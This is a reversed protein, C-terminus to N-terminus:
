IINVFSGNGLDDSQEVILKVPTRDTLESHSTLVGIILNDARMNELSTVIINSTESDLSGFSEDLFLLEIPAKVNAQIKSSLAFALATSAMFIEGDSLTRPVRNMGGNLNDQVYIEADDFKLAFRGKSIILLKKSAEKVIYKLQNQSMYEAFKSDRFLETLKELAAIESEKESKQRLLINVENLDIEMLAIKSNVIALSNIKDEIDEKLITKRIAFDSLKENIEKLNTIGAIETLGVAENIEINFGNSGDIRLLENSNIDKIGTMETTVEDTITFEGFGTIEGIGTFEIESLGGFNNLVTLENISNLEDIKDLGDLKNSEGLEGFGILENIDGLEDVRNSENVEVSENLESFADIENLENFTTFEEIEKIEEIVTAETIEAVKKIVAPEGTLKRNLNEINISVVKVDEHYKRIEENINNEEISSIFAKLVDEISEFDLKILNENIQIQLSNFDKELFQKENESFLLEDEHKKWAESVTKFKERIIKENKSINDIRINVRKHEHELNEKNSINFIESFKNENNLIYNEKSKLDTEMNLIEREINDIHIKSDKLEEELEDTKKILIDGATNLIEFNNDKEKVTENWNKFVEFDNDSSFELKDCLANLLNRFNDAKSIVDNKERIMDNLNDENIKIRESIIVREINKEEAIQAFDSIENEAVIKKAKSEDTQNSINRFDTKMETLIRLREKVDCDEFPKLINDNEENLINKKSELNSIADLNKTYTDFSIEHEEFFKNRQVTLSEIFNRDYSTKHKQINHSESGCVPCYEGDKLADQFDNIIKEQELKKVEDTLSEVKESLILIEDFLKENAFHKEKIEKDSLNMAARNKEIEVIANLHNEYKIESLMIEKELDFSKQVSEEIESFMKFKEKATELNENLLNIESNFNEVLKKDDSIKQSVNETKSDLLRVIDIQNEYKNLIEFGHEIDKRFTPNIFAETKESINAELKEKTQNIESVLADYVKEDEIKKDKLVNIEESIKNKEEALTENEEIIKFAQRLNFLKERLQPLHTNRIIELAQFRKEFHNKTKTIDESERVKENYSDVNLKLKEEINRLNNILHKMSNADKNRKVVFEKQEVVERQSDLLKKEDEYIETQENIEKKRKLEREAKEIDSLEQKIEELIQTEKLYNERHEFISEETIDYHNIDNEIIRLDFKAADIRKTTTKVFRNGYKEFRFLKESMNRRENSTLSLFESFKSQQLIVTRIFDEYNLGLIETIEKNINEATDAITRSVDAKQAILKCKDTIIEENERKFNREVLFNIGEGNYNIQFEFSVSAADTKSNIFMEGKKGGDLKVIKGYLSLTVADIITSKGSGTKGGICFFGYKSLPAFDIIQEELFSNIGKIKLIIPRL